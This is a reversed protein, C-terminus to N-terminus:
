KLISVMRWALVITSRLVAACAEAWCVSCRPDFHEDFGHANCIRCCPSSSGEPILVSGCRSCRRRRKAPRM